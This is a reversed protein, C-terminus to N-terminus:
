RKQRLAKLSFWREKPRGGTEKREFRALGYELLCSLVRAIENGSRHRAFLERIDFRALGKPSNRLARLIEDAVPDGLSDGFIFRASAECFNWLALAALLHEKRVEASLDLLAYLCAFRMVHAEAWALLAGTLGPKGESLDAYVRGWVARAEDDRGMVGVRSAFELRRRLEVKLPAAELDGLCGGEPLVRSRRVCAWVHRNGFGNAAETTSLYRRLEDVTCHVVL